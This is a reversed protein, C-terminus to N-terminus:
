FPQEDYPGPICSLLDEPFKLAIRPEFVIHYSEHIVIGLFM